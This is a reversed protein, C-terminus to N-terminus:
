ELYMKLDAWSELLGDPKLAALEERTNIGWTVALTTTGADLGAKVDHYSDGIYLAQGPSINLMDLAKLIPDPFPKHVYVDHATIVVNMYNDLGTIEVTRLAGEKGKSTVIGLLFGNMKLFELMEVTGPFPSVNNEFDLNYYKEYLKLFEEKEEGAFSSAIERLPRGIWKILEAEAWPLNLKKFVLHYTRMIFPLSDVLTGDLDFLAASIAM